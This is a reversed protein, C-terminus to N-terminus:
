FPGGAIIWLTEAPTETNNAYSHPKRPDLLLSDGARLDFVEGDAVIRLSGSLVIVVEEEAAHIYPQKGSSERAPIVSRQIQFHRSHGPALITDPPLAQEHGNQGAEGARMLYNGSHTKEGILSTLPADLVRLVNLLTGFSPAKKDREVLSLFGESVGASSAVQKLTLGRDQRLARLRRGILQAGGEVM